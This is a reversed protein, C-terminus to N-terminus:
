LLSIEQQSLNHIEVTIIVGAPVITAWTPTVSFVAPSAASFSAALTLTGTDCITATTGATTQQTVTGSTDQIAAIFTETTSCEHPTGQFASVNVIVEFAGTQGSAIAVNFLSTATTNTTSGVKKHQTWETIQTQVTSGSSFSQSAGKLKTHAATGNGSGLGSQLVSDQGVQNSGTASAASFTLAQDTPGLIHNIAGMGPGYKLTDFFNLIGCGSYFEMSRVSGFLPINSVPISINSGVIGSVPCDDSILGPSGGVSTFQGSWLNTQGDSGPEYHILNGTLTSTTDINKILGGSSLDGGNGFQICTAMRECHLYDIGPNESALYLGGTINNSGNGQVTGTFSEPGQAFQGVQYGTTGCQTGMGSVQNSTLVTTGTCGSLLSGGYTAPAGYVTWTPASTYNTGSGGSSPGAAGGPYGVAVLPNGSNVKQVYCTAGTGGGGSLVCTGSNLEIVFGWSSTSNGGTNNFNVHVNGIKFHSPGSQSSPAETRDWFGCAVNPNLNSGGFNGCNIDDIISREQANETYYGFVNTNSGGDIKLHQVIQGFSNNQWGLGESTGQGGGCVICSYTGAPFPGHPINFTLVTTSNPFQPVTVGNVVCNSGGWGTATTGCAQVLSGLTSSSDGDAVGELINANSPTFWPVSTVIPVAPLLLRVNKAQGHYPNSNCAQAVTFGRADVTGGTSPLATIAANVKACWDAGTFQDAFLVVPTSTVALNVNTTTPQGPTANSLSLNAFTNTGSGTGVISPSTIGNPYSAAAGLQLTGGSNYNYGLGAAPTTGQPFPQATLVSQCQFGSGAPNWFLVGQVSSLENFVNNTGGTYECLGYPDDTFLVAAQGNSGFSGTQAVQLNQFMSPNPFAGTGTSSAGGPASEYNTGDSYFEVSAGASLTYFSQGDITCSICTIVVAGAGLDRAVFLSGAGFGFNLPSPLSAGVTLANNFTVLRTADQAVFTYTTGTQANVGSLMRANNTQGFLLCPFFLLLAFAVLRKM